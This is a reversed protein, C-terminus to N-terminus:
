GEIMVNGRAKAVCTLVYEDECNVDEEYSVEGSIKRLKCMGCAGMKCGSSLTIGERQAAELITEGDEC